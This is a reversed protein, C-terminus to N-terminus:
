NNSKGDRLWVNPNALADSAGSDRIKKTEEALRTDVQEDVQKDHEVVEIAHELNDEAKDARKKERKAKAQFYKAAGALFALLATVVAIGYLKIKSLIM